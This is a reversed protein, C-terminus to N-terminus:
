AGLKPDYDKPARIIKEIGHKTVINGGSSRGKIGFEAFHVPLVLNRIRLGSKLHILLM